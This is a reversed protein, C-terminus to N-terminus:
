ADAGEVEAEKKADGEPLGALRMLEAAQAQVIAQMYRFTGPKLDDPMAALMKKVKNEEHPVAKVLGMRKWTGKIANWNTTAIDSLKSFCRDEIGKVTTEHSVLYTPLSGAAAASEFTQKLTAERELWKSTFGMIDFCYRERECLAKFTELDKPDITVEVKTAGTGSEAPAVPAGTAEITTAMAPYGSEDPGVAWKKKVAGPITDVEEEDMIGLGCHALVSRRIAKTTAKMMANAKNEGKLGEIPVAGMNETSRGDADTVRCFVCYIGDQLERGTIQHALKRNNTLQQTCGANAYLIEKGNLTLLDFPKAAPDLGAQQCKYNYYQVKQAANLRKLDGYLVLMEIITPDLIILGSDGATAVAMKEATM